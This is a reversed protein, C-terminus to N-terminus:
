NIKSFPCISSYRLYTLRVLAIVLCNKTNRMKNLVSFSNLYTTKSRLFTKCMKYAKIVYFFAFNM